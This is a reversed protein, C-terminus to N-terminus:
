SGEGPITFGASATTSIAHSTSPGPPPLIWESSSLWRLYAQPPPPPQGYNQQSSM